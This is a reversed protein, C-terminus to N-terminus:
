FRRGRHHPQRRAARRRSGILVGLGGAVLALSAPEPVVPPAVVGPSPTKLRLFDAANDGTDTGFADRSLSFGAAVDPAWLGEGANYLGANGYQLADMITGAPDLLRIADPGNQWDVNATYDRAALVDGAAGATAIVLLGDAPVTMGSLSITRYAKGDNGNVGQLSWGTLSFGEEVAIETFVDDADSGVGDYVVEQLIPGASAGTAATVLLLLVLALARRSPLAMRPARQPDRRPARPRPLRLHLHQFPDQIM